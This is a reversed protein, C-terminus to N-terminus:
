EAREGGEVSEVVYTYHLKPSYTIHVIEGRRLSKYGKESIAFTMVQELASADIFRLAVGFWTCTPRLTLGPRGARTQVAARLSIVKGTTHVRIRHRLQGDVSNAIHQTVVGPVQLPQSVSDEIGFILTFLGICLLLLAVLSLLGGIIFANRPKIGPRWSWWSVPESELASVEQQQRM